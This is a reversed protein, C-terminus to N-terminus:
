EAEGRCAIITRLIAEIRLPKNVHFWPDEPMPEGDPWLRMADWGQQRDSVLLGHYWVLQCGAAEEAEAMLHYETSPHTFDPIFTADDHIFRGPADLSCETHCSTYCCDHVAVVVDADSDVMGVRPRIKAKAYLDQLRALTQEDYKPM